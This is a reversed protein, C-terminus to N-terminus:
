PFTSYLAHKQLLADAAYLFVNVDTSTVDRAELSGTVSFVTQIFWIAMHCAFLLCHRRKLDAGDFM